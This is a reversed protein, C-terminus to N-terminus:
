PTERPFTDSPAPAAAGPEAVLEPLSADLAHAIRRLATVDIGHRGTEFLSVFGRSLGARDAVHQQTLDQYRRRLRVRRALERLFAQDDVPPASV